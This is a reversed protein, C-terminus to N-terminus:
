SSPSCPTFFNRNGVSQKPNYASYRIGEMARCLPAAVGLAANKAWGGAPQRNYKTIKWETVYDSQQPPVDFLKNETRAVKSACVFLQTPHSNILTVRSKVVDPNAVEFWRRRMGYEVIVMKNIVFGYDQHLVRYFLEPSFQYFGHGFYNNAMTCIILHGGVRVMDMCSALAVPLNFVHELTGVDIVCDYSERLTQPIPKNLDHEITCGEYRSADLSQLEECGLAAFFPECWGGSNLHSLTVSPPLNFEGVLEKTEKPCLYYNQRGLTLTRRFSVGERHAECLFRASATDIGM